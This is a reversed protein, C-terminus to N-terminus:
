LKRDAVGQAMLKRGLGPKGPLPKWDLRLKNETLARGTNTGIWFDKSGSASFCGGAVPPGLPVDEMENDPIGFGAGNRRSPDIAGAYDGHRAARRWPQEDPYANGRTSTLSPRVEPSGYFSSSTIAPSKPEYEPRPAPTSPGDLNVDEFSDGSDQEENSKPGKEGVPAQAKEAIARLAGGPKFVDKLTKRRKEFTSGEADDHFVFVMGALLFTIALITLLYAGVGDATSMPRMKELGTLTNARGIGSEGIDPNGPSTGGTSNTVPAELEHIITALVVEMAVMQQGVGTTGDWGGSINTWMHGCMRGNDGGTCQMAAATASAELLPRITSYTWPAWKTTAAMWRALYAKFSLEDNDCLHVGEYAVETMIDNDTGTFFVRLGNLLGNVRSRWLLEATPDIDATYNYMAAAGHLFAGANYTWQYPVVQTCNNEVSAGDYVYYSDDHLFQVDVMWDWIRNAWIAYTHNGTYLALRGAMNFFCAQSISNKYLFGNNWLFIQWRLGGGCQATDWRAAQTDFVNQALALWQPESAPPDPFQYEAASLVAM